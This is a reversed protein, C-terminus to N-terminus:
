NSFNNNDSSPTKGTVFSTFPVTNFFIGLVPMDTAPVTCPSPISAPVGDSKM